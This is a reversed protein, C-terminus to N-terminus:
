RKLLPLIFADRLRFTACGRSCPAQEFTVGFLHDAVRFLTSLAVEVTFGPQQAPLGLRQMERELGQQRAISMDWISLPETPGLLGADRACRHLQQVAAAAASRHSDALSALFSHVQAPDEALAAGQMRYHMYSPSGVLGALERRVGALQVIQEQVGVQLGPPIDGAAALQPPPQRVSGCAGGMCPRLEREARKALGTRRLRSASPKRLANWFAHAAGTCCQHM